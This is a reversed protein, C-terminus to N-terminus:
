ASFTSVQAQVHVIGWFVTGCESVHLHQNQLEWGWNGCITAECITSFTPSQHYLQSVLNNPRQENAMYQLKLRSHVGSVPTELPGLFTGPHKWCSVACKLSASPTCGGNRTYLWTMYIKMEVLNWCIMDNKPCMMGWLGKKSWLPGYLQTCVIMFCRPWQLLFASFSGLGIDSSAVILTRCAWSAAHNSLITWSKHYRKRTNRVPEFSKWAGCSEQCDKTGDHMTTHRRCSHM